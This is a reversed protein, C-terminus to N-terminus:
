SARRASLFAEILILAAAVMNFYSHAERSMHIKFIPNYLIAIGVFCWFLARSAHPYLCVSIWVAYGTVGIRLFQYYGYPLDALALVNAAAVFLSIPLSPRHEFDAM